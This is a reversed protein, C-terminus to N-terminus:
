LRANERLPVDCGVTSRRRALGHLEFAEDGRVPLHRGLNCLEVLSCRLALCGHRLQLHLEHLCAHVHLLRLHRLLLRLGRLLERGLHRLLLAVLEDRLVLNCELLHTFPHEAARRERM